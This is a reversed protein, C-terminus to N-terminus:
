GPVIREWIRAFLPAKEKRLSSEEGGGRRLKMAELRKKIRGKPSRDRVLLSPNQKEL